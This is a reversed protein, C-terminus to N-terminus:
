DLPGGYKNLLPDGRRAAWYFLVLVGFPIVALLLSWGTRGVDHLRRVFTM